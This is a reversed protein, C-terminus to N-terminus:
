GLVKTQCINFCPRAPTGISTMPRISPSNTSSYVTWTISTKAMGCDPVVTETSDTSWTNWAFITSMSFCVPLHAALTERRMCARCECVALDSITTPQYWECGPNPHQSDLTSMLVCCTYGWSQERESPRVGSSVGGCECDKSCSSRRDTATTTSGIWDTFPLTTISANRSMLGAMTRWPSSGRCVVDLMPCM